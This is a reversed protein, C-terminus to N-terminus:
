VNVLCLNSATSISRLTYVFITIAHLPYMDLNYVYIFASVFLFPQIPILSRILFTNSVNKDQLCCVCVCLAVNPYTRDILLGRFAPSRQCRLQEFLMYTHIYTHQIHHRRYLYMHAM